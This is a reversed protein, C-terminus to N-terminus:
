KTIYRHTLRTFYFGLPTIITADHQFINTTTQHKEKTHTWKIHPENNYICEITPFLFSFYIFLFILVWGLLGEGEAQGACGVGAGGMVGTARPATLLRARNRAGV